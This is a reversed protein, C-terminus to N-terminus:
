SWDPVRWARPSELDDSNEDACTSNDRDNSKQIALVLSRYRSPSKSDCEVCDNGRKTRKCSRCKCERQTCTYSLLFPIPKPSSWVAKNCPLSEVFGASSGPSPSTQEYPQASPSPCRETCFKGRSIKIISMPCCQPGEDSDAGDGKVWEELGNDTGM